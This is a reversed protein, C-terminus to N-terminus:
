DFAITKNRKGKGSELAAKKRKLKVPTEAEVVEAEQKPEQQQSNLIADVDLVPAANLSEKGNSLIQLRTAGLM